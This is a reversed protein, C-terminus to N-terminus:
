AGMVKPVTYESVLRPIALCPAQFPTLTYQGWNCGRGGGHYRKVVPICILNFLAVQVIAASLTKNRGASACDSAVECTAPHAMHLVNRAIGTM